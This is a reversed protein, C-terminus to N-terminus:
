LKKKLHGTSDRLYVGNVFGIKCSCDKWMHKGNYNPCEDLVNIQEEDFRDGEKIWDAKPSIIGIVKFCGEIPNCYNTKHPPFNETHWWVKGDEVKDCIFEDPSLKNGNVSKRAEMSLKPDIYYHRFKDGM